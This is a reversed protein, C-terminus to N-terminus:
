LFRAVMDMIWVALLFLALFSLRQYELERTDLVSKINRMIKWYEDYEKAKQENILRHIRRTISLIKVVEGDKLVISHGQNWEFIKHDILEYFDIAAVEIQETTVGHPRKAPSTMMSLELGLTKYFEIIKRKM